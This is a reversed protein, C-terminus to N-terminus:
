RSRRARGTAGGGGPLASTVAPSIISGGSQRPNRQREPHDNQRRSPSAFRKTTGRLKPRQLTVPGATTKVTVDCYGNRMGPRADEALVQREYRERGLFMTIEAELATQLLLRAGLQAVREIADALDNGEAFVADIEAPLRETPSVRGTV